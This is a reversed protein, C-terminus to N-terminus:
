KGKGNKGGFRNNWKEIFSQFDPNDKNREQIDEAYAKVNSLKERQKKM